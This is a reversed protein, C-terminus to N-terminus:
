NRAPQLAAIRAQARELMEAGGRTRSAYEVMEAWGQRYAPRQQMALYQSAVAQENLALRQDMDAAFFGQWSQYYAQQTLYEPHHPRHKLLAALNQGTREITNDTPRYNGRGWFSLETATATSVLDLYTARAGGTVM